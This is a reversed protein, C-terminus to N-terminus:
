IPAGLRMGLRLGTPSPMLILGTQRQALLSGLPVKHWRETHVIFGTILGIVGGGVACLVAGLAADEGQSTIPGFCFNEGGPPCPSNHYSAAGAIAGIAAGGLFGIALGTVPHSHRGQSIELKTLHDFGITLSDRQPDRRFGIGDQRVDTITGIQSTDSPATVLRVRAGPVVGLPAANSQQAGQSWAVLPWIPGVVLALVASSAVVRCAMSVM